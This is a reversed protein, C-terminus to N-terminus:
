PDIKINGITFHNANNSLTATSKVPLYTHQIFLRVTYIKYLFFMQYQICITLAQHRLKFKPTYSFCM